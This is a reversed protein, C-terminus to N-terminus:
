SSADDFNWKPSALQWILKAFDRRCKEYGARGTRHCLLLPVVVPGQGAAAAAAQREEVVYDGSRQAGRPIDNKRRFTALAVILHWGRACRSIGETLGALGVSMM